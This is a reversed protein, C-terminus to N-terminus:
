ETPEESGKYQKIAEKLEEKVALIEDLYKSEMVNNYAQNAKGCKFELYGYDNILQEIEEITM